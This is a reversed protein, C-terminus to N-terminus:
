LIKTAAFVGLAILALNKVDLGSGSEPDSESGPSNDPQELPNTVVNGAVWETTRRPVGTTNVNGDPPYSAPLRGNDLRVSEYALLAEGQTKGKAEIAKQVDQLIEGFAAIYRTIVRREGRDKKTKRLEDEQLMRNTLLYLLRGLQVLNNKSISSPNFVPVNLGQDAWFQSDTRLRNLLNVYREQEAKSDAKIFEWAQKALEGIVQIIASVTGPDAGLNQTKQYNNHLMVYMAFVKKNSMPAALICVFKIFLYLHGKKIPKLANVGLM